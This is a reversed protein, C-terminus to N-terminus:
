QDKPGVISILGGIQTNFIDKLGGAMFPSIVKNLFSVKYGRCNFPYEKHNLFTRIIIENTNTDTYSPAILHCKKCDSIIQSYLKVEGGINKHERPRTDIM